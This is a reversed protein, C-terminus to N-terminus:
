RARQPKHRDVVSLFLERSVADATLHRSLMGCLSLMVIGHVGGWLLNGILIPDGEIVGDAILGRVYSKMHARARDGARVLDPDTEESGLFPKDFMMRYVHPRETAFRV